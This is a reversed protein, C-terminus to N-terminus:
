NDRGKKIINKGRNTLKKECRRSMEKKISEIKKDFVIDDDCQVETWHVNFDELMFELGNFRLGLDWLRNCRSEVITM